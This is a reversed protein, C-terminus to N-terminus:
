ATARTGFASRSSVQEACTTCVDSDAPDFTGPMIVRIEAGCAAGLALWPELYQPIELATVSHDLPLAHVIGVEEPLARERVNLHNRRVRYRTLGPAFVPEPSAM